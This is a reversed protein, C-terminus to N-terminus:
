PHDGEGAKIIKYQLGSATTQVGEKTKNADLFAQGAKLNKEGLEKLKLEGRARLEAQFKTMIEQIESESYINTKGTFGEKFGAIFTDVDLEVYQQLMNAGTSQGIIYGWKKLDNDLSDKTIDAAYMSTAILLSSLWVLKKM